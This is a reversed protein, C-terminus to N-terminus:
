TKVNTESVIYLPREKVQMFIRGIYEGTVGLVLLCMAGIFSVVIILSTWGSVASGVVLLSYLAYVIEALCLFSVIVAFLISLRLPRISFATIGNLSFVFMKGLTYKTEGSHRSAEDYEVTTQAFGYWRIMGRIFVDTEKNDMLVDVVRRDLLRFDAVGEEVDLDSLFSLIRSFLRSSVRKFFSRGNHVYLRKANVVDYGSEWKEILTPILSVPHQLDADMTIVADGDAYQLGAMLACQHGFNRSLRVYKIRDDERSLTKILSFTDDDSGDDVFVCEFTRDNLEGTLSSWIPLINEAENFCPIVISISKDKKESTM